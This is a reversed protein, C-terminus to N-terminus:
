NNEYWNIIQKLEDIQKQLGSVLETVEEKTYINKIQSDINTLSANLKAVEDDTYHKSDELCHAISGIGDGTIVDLQSQINAEAQTARNVENSLNTAVDSVATNFENDKAISREIESNLSDSVTKLSANASDINGQLIAEAAKARDVENNLASTLTEEASTARSVESAISDNIGSVKSDVDSKNYVDDSNAKGALVGNIAKIADNDKSLQEAIEGLTDLAEPATGVVDKIRNDVDTKTAYDKLTETLNLESGSKIKAIEDDTYHKADSLAHNISGVGEGNIVDIKQNISNISTTNATIGSQLENEKNTARTVEDAVAKTLESDKDTSRQIEANLNNSVSEISGALEAEKATARSVENSISTNTTDIANSLENEKTTARTVEANLNDSIEKEAKKARTVEAELDDAFGTNKNNISSKLTQLADALDKEVLTARNTESQIATSLDNDREKGREIETSLYTEIRNEEAKARNVEITIDNTHKVDMENSREKEDEIAKKLKEDVEKIKDVKEKLQNKLDGIEDSLAQEAGTAREVEADIAAQLNSEAEQARNDSDTVKDDFDKNSNDAETKLSDIQKQLDAEADTARQTEDDVKTDLDNVRNTISEDFETSRQIEDELNNTYENKVYDELEAFQKNRNVREQEILDRLYELTHSNFSENPMEHFRNNKWYIDTVITKVRNHTKGDLTYSYTYEVIGSELDKMFCEPVVLLDELELQRVDRKNFPIYNNPNKTWVYIKLDQLDRVRIRRNRVDYLSLVIVVEGEKGFKNGCVPPKHGKEFEKEHKMM